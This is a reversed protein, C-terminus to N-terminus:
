GNNLEAAQQSQGARSIFDAILRHQVADDNVSQVTAEAANMSIEVIKRRLVIRHRTQERALDEEVRAVVLAAADRADAIIENHVSGAEKVAADIRERSEIEINRLRVVYDDHLRQTESVATELQNHVDEVRAEREILLGRLFPRSLVPVNVHWLLLALLIFGVIQALLVRPDEIAIPGIQFEALLV